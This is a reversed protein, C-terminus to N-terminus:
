IYKSTLARLQRLGRYRIEKGSKVPCASQTSLALVKFRRGKILPLSWGAEVPRRGYMAATYGDISIAAHYSWRTISLELPCPRLLIM